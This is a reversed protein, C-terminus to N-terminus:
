EWFQAQVGELRRSLDAATDKSAEASGELQEVRKQLRRMEARHERETAIVAVTTAVSGLLSLVFWIQAARSALWKPKRLKPNDAASIRLITKNV